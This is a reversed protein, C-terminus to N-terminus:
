KKMIKLKELVEEVHGPVKLDIWSAKIVANEDLIFTSRITGKVPKGYMKKDKLLGCNEIFAREPDSLLDYKLSLKEAFNKHSSITDRSIGIINANLEFFKEASDNFAIVENTCASTNNKAYFFVVLFKGKYNELSCINGQANKLNFSPFKQNIELM